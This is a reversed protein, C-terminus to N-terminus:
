QSVEADSSADESPTGESPTGDPSDDGDDDRDEEDDGYFLYDIFDQGDDDEDPVDIVEGTERDTRTVNIGVYADLPTQDSSTPSVTRLLDEYSIYRIHEIVKDYAQRVNYEPHERIVANIDAVLHFMADNAIQSKSVGPMMISASDFLQRGKPGYRYTRFRTKETTSM